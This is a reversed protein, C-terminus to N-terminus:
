ELPASKPQDARTWYVTLGSVALSDRVIDTGADLLSEGAADFKRVELTSSEGIARIWAAAGTPTVELDSAPSGGHSTLNTGRKNGTRLDAVGIRAQCDVTKSCRLYDWAVFRGALRFSRPGTADFGDFRGIRTLRRPRRHCGYATYDYSGDRVVEARSNAAITTGTRTCADSASRSDDTLLLAPIALVPAALLVIWARYRSM